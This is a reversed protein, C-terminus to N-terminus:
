MTQLQAKVRSGRSIILTARDSDRVGARRTACRACPYLEPDKDTCGDRLGRVPPNKAKCQSNKWFSPVRFCYFLLVM